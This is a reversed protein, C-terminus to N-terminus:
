SIEGNEDTTRGCAGCRFSTWWVAIRLQTGCDGCEMVLPVLARKDTDRDSEVTLATPEDTKMPM